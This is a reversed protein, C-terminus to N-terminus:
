APTEKAPSRCGLVELTPAPHRPALAQWTHGTRPDVLTSADAYVRPSRHLQRQAKWYPMSQYSDPFLQRLANRVKPAHRGSMAPFLHHEVHFGFHLTLWEIFRPGTVSLSNALPDNVHTHPSLSHNTLILAMIIANAGILPIGYALLFDGAGLALALALWLALGLGTELLALLHERPKLWRQQRARLLMHTSQVSFGFLLALVGRARRLGPAAYDTILRVTRSGRYATLTPYADPDVDPRNTNGHHVRNHWAVWLRPSLAFPLFGVFGILSRLRKDRVIAGHLAEHAVFTLGAFSAAIPLTLLLQWGGRVWSLEIAAM